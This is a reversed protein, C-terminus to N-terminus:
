LATEALRRGHAAASGFQHDLVWARKLYLHADVEWAFGMGGHIQVCARSNALAAEGAIVKAAHIMEDPDGVEPQDLTVAAAEVTVQALEARTVMDALMHKVAQFGGIPRDFQQRELAYAAAMDVVAAALGAAQAACLLAGDRQWRRAEGADGTARV